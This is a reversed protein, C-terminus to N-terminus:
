KRRGSVCHVNLILILDEYVEMTNNELNKSKRKFGGTNVVFRNSLFFYPVRTTKQM